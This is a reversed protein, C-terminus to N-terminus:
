GWPFAVANLWARAIVMHGCANPHIRDDSLAHPHLHTLIDDFAAQTDVFHAQYKLALERVAAGYEDMMARMPENRDPELIYPAMLVLGKLESRTSALLGDLTRKYEELPVGKKMWKPSDFHRWVDNIGIMISLWDPAMNFVDTQWRVKLDRVTNGSIGMNVVRFHAGARCAQLLANVQAVYGSGLGGFFGEGVPRARDCDTISDGIMLIKSDPPIIM